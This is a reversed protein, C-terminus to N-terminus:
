KYKRIKALRKYYIMEQLAREALEWEQKYVYDLEFLLKELVDIEIEELVEGNRLKEFIMEINIV